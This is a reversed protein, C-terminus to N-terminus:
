PFIIADTGIAKTVASDLDIPAAQQITGITTMLLNGFSTPHGRTSKNMAIEKRM